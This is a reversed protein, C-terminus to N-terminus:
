TKNKKNVGKAQTVEEGDASILSNMKSKLRVFENIKRGKFDGKM